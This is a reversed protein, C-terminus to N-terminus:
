RRRLLREYHAKAQKYRFGGIRRAYDLENKAKMIEIENNIANIM